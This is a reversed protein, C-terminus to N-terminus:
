RMRNKGFNNGPIIFFLFNAQRPMSYIGNSVNDNTHKFIAIRTCSFKGIAADPKILTQHYKCTAFM